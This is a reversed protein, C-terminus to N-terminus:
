QSSLNGLKKNLMSNSGTYSLVLLIVHVWRVSPDTQADAGNQNSDESDANLLMLDKAVWLLALSQDSQLSTKM